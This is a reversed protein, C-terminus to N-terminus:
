LKGSLSQQALQAIREREILIEEDPFGRMHFDWYPNRKHVAIPVGMPHNKAVWLLDRLIAKHWPRVPIMAREHMIAQWEEKSILFPKKLRMSTEWNKQAMAQVSLGKLMQGRIELTWISPDLGHQPAHTHLFYLYSGLEMFLYTEAEKWHFQCFEYLNRFLYYDAKTARSKFGRHKRLAHRVIGAHHTSPGLLLVSGAGSFLQPYYFAGIFFCSRFYSFYKYITKTSLGTQEKTLIPTNGWVFHNALTEFQAESLKTHKGYKNKPKYTKNRHKWDPYLKLKWKSFASQSLGHKTCYLSQSLSSKFWARIHSRWFREKKNHPMSRAM